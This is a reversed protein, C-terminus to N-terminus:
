KGGKRVAKEERKAEDHVASLFLLKADPDFFGPYGLEDLELVVGIADCNWKRKSNTVVAAFQSVRIGYMAGLSRMATTRAAKVFGNIRARTIESGGHEISAVMVQMDQIKEEPTQM